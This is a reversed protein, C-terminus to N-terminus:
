ASFLALSLAKTCRHAGYVYGTAEAATKSQSSTVSNYDLYFRTSHSNTDHFPKVRTRPHSCVSCLISDTQGHPSHSMAKHASHVPLPKEVM